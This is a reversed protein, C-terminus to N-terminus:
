KIKLALYDLPHFVAFITHKKSNPHLQNYFLLWQAFRLRSTFNPFPIM